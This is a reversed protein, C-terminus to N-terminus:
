KTKIQKFYQEVPALVPSYPPLYWAEFGLENISLKTERSTHYSANDLLLIPNKKKLRDSNIFWQQLILLYFWFIESSVTDKTILLLYEGDSTIGAILSIRGTAKTNIIASTVGSPLWSYWSKIERNFAPKM